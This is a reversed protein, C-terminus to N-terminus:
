RNLERFKIDDWQVPCIGGSYSEGIDSRIENQLEEYKVKDINEITHTDAIIPSNYKKKLENLIQTDIAGNLLPIIKSSVECSPLHCYYICVKLVIDIVKASQGWSANQSNKIIKGNKKKEATKVNLMFWECFEQHKKYYEETTQLNFFEEICKNLKEVIKKTSGKEFVRGMATFSVAMDIINQIKITIANKKM